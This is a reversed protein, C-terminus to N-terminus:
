PENWPCTDEIGTLFMTKSRASNIQRFFVNQEDKTETQLAAIIRAPDNNVPSFTCATLYIAYM